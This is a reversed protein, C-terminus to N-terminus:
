RTEYKPRIISVKRLICWQGVQHHPHVVRRHARTGCYMPRRRSGYLPQRFEKGRFTDCELAEPEVLWEGDVGLGGAFGDEGEAEAGDPAFDRKHVSIFCLSEMWGMPPVGFVHTPPM